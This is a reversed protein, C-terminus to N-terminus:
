VLFAGAQMFSVMLSSGVFPRFDPDLFVAAVHENNHFADHNRIGIFDGPCESIIDGLIGVHHRGPRHRAPPHNTGSPKERTL